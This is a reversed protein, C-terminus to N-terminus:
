ALARPFNLVAFAGRAAFAAADYARAAEEEDDFLGLHRREGPTGIQACWRGNKAKWYVGIFRSSGGLPRKNAASQGPDVVRLNCRRNDLGDHNVHDGYRPDGRDLGLILRHLLVLPHGSHAAYFTHGDPIVHWMGIAAVREADDEDILAEFGRTLPLRAVGDGVLVPAADERSRKRDPAAPDGYRYWKQYHRPCWGRGGRLTTNPCADFKCMAQTM